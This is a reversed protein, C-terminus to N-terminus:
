RRAAKEIKPSYRKLANLVRDDPDFVYMYVGKNENECTFYYSTECEDSVGAFVCKVAEKRHQPADTDSVRGFNIINNVPVRVIPVRNAQNEIKTIELIGSSFIYEFEVKVYKVIVYRTIIVAPILMFGGVFIGIPGALKYVILIFAALVAYICFISLKVLFDKKKKVILSVGVGAKNESAESM